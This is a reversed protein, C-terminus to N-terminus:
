QLGRKYNDEADTLIGTMHMKTGSDGAWNKAQKAALRVWQSIQLGASFHFELKVENFWIAVMEGTSEVRWQFQAPMTTTRRTSNLENVQIERDLKQRAEWNDLSEGSVRMAQKCAMKLGAAIKSASAYPMPFATRGVVLVVRDCDTEVCVKQKTLLDSM